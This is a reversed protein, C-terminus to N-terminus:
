IVTAIQAVQNGQMSVTSRLHGEVLLGGDIVERTEEMEVHIKIRLIYPAKCLACRARVRAEKYVPVSQRMDVILPSSVLSKQGKIVVAVVMQVLAHLDEVAETPETLGDSPPRLWM